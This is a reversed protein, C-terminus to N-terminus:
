PGHTPFDNRSQSHSRLWLRVHTPQMTETVVSRLDNRLTELDVEARARAGFRELTQAADFKQRFFRRDVIEQIRTRAPRVLAATALTSAAVALGSGSTLGGLALQLLLISVLYVGALTGTLSGYVLARNVVVDIDYLRHRLIAIGTALPFTMVAVALAVERVQDIGSVSLFFSVVNLAIIIGAVVAALAVWKLQQRELGRARKLRSRLAAAAAVVSLGTFIWGLATLSNTFGFWGTAGLPNVIGTFPPDLPGPRLAYGLEIFASGAIAAAAAPWWRPSPLHGDPFLLLSLGVLGFTPVLGLNQFWAAFAGGPLNSWSGFLAQDAYQFALDGTGIAVGTLCLVWGVRHAPLRALVLAGVTGFTLSLFVYTLGGWRGVGAADGPTSDSTGVILLTLTGLADLLCFGFILAAFWRARRPNM